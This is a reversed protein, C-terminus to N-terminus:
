KNVPIFYLDDHGFIKEPGYYKEEGYILTDGTLKIILYTFKTSELSLANPFVSGNIENIAIKFKTSDNNFMWKGNAKLTGYMTEEYVSDKRFSILKAMLTDISKYDQGFYKVGVQQWNKCFLNPKNSSQSFTLASFLFILQLIYKWM